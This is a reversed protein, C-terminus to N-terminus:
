CSVLYEGEFGLTAFVSQGGGPLFVQPIAQTRKVSLSSAIESTRRRITSGEELTDVYHGRDQTSAHSSGDRAQYGQGAFGVIMARGWNNLVVKTPIYKSDRNAFTLM